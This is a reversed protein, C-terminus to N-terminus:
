DLLDLRELSPEITGVHAEDAPRQGPEVGQVDVRTVALYALLSRNIPV